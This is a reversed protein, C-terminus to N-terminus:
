FISYFGVFGLLASIVAMVVAMVTQGSFLKDRLEDPALAITNAGAQSFPVMSTADAGILIASYLIIPDLGTAASVASVMPYMLPCVVATTSSFISMVGSVLCLIPPILFPAMTSNKFIDSMVNILDAKSAVEMLFCVGAIMLVTGMPLDRIVKNTDGLNMLMAIVAFIVLMAQPKCLKVLNAFFVNDILHFANMINPVVIVIFSLLILIFTKRQVPTFDAPKESMAEAAAAVENGLQGKQLKSDKKKIIVTYYVYFIAFVFVQKILFTGFVRIYTLEAIDAKMIKELVGILIVGSGTWPNMTGTGYGMIVALVSLMPAMGTELGITFAIPALFIITGPGGGLLGMILGILFIVWPILNINKRFVWLIKKSFVTLAGNQRAFGYFLSAAMLFFAINDPWYGLIEAVTSGQALSGILFAFVMSIIGLNVDWKNSVFIAIVISILCTWLIAINSM